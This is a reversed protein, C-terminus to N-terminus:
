GKGKTKATGKKKAPLLPPSKAFHDYTKNAALQRVAGKEQELFNRWLPDHVDELRIREDSVSVGHQRLKRNIQTKIRCPVHVLYDVPDTTARFGDVTSPDTTKSTKIVDVSPMQMDHVYKRMKSAHDRRWKKVDDSGEICSQGTAWRLYQHYQIVQGPFYVLAWLALRAAKFGTYETSYGPAIAQKQMAEQITKISEPPPSDKVNLALECKTEEPLDLKGLAELLRLKHWEPYDLKAVLEMLTLRVKAPTPIPRNM